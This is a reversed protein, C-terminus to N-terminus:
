LRMLHYAFGAIEEALYIAIKKGGKVVLTDMNVAVGRNQLFRIGRDIDTVGIAIHGHTGRGGRKMLEFEKTGSFISSNGVAYGMHFTKELQDATGLAEEECSHNFGVHSLHFNLMVDIVRDNPHTWLIKERPTGYDVAYRPSSVHNLIKQLSVLVAESPEVLPEGEDDANHSLLNRIERCVNLEHRFPESDDDRLYEMVVSSGQKKGTYRKELLGELIRYLKLFDEARSHREGL